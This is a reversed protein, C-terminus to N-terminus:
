LRITLGLFTSGDRGYVEFAGADWLHLPYALLMLGAAARLGTDFQRFERVHPSSNILYFRMDRHAADIAQERRSFAYGAFAAAGLYGGMWAIGHARRGGRYQPVGPFLMTWDRVKGANLIEGSQISEERIQWTKGSRDRLELRDGRVATVDAEIPVSGQIVLKVRVGPQLAPVITEWAQNKQFTISKIKAAPLREKIKMATRDTLGVEGKRLIVLLGDCHKKTPDSHLVYCVSAGPYGLELSLIESSPLRILTGQHEFSIVGGEASQFRGELVEGNKRTLVDAELSLLSCILLLTISSAPKM